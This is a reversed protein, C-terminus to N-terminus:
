HQTAVIEISSINTETATKQDFFIKDGNVSFNDVNSLPLLSTDVIGQDITVRYMIDGKIHYLKGDSVEWLRGKLKYPMYIPQLNLDLDLLAVEFSSQRIFYRNLSCDSRISDVHELQIRYQSSILDFRALHTGEDTFLTFLIAQGDCSWVPNAALPPMNTVKRTQQSSIAMIHLEGDLLFAVQKGDPSIQLDSLERQRRYKSLQKIVANSKLWIQNKGSRDSVFLFQEDKSFANVKGDNFSSEVEVSLSNKDSFPFHASVIHHSFFSGIVTLFKNEISRSLYQVDQMPIDLIVEEGTLPSFKTLNRELDYYYIYEGTHDWVAKYLITPLIKLTSTVRTKLDMKLMEIQTGRISRLILLQKGDPSLDHSYDGALGSVPATVIFERGSILNIKKLYFPSQNDDAYSYYLWQGDSTLSIPSLSANKGCSVVKSKDFLQKDLNLKARWIECSLGVNKIYYLFNSDKSWEASFHSNGDTDIDIIKNSRIDQLKLIWSEHPNVRSSFAMYLGNPSLSPSHEQGKLFSLNQFKVFNIEDTKVAETNFLLITFILFVVLFLQKKLFSKSVEQKFQLSEKLNKTEARYSLEYDEISAILSYGRQHYTKIYVPNKYSDGLFRRLESIKAAINNDSTFRGGWVHERLEDKTVLSNHNKLLYSLILIHKSELQTETNESKLVGIDPYFLCSGIKVEISM